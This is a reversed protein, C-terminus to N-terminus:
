RSAGRRTELVGAAVLSAALIAGAITYPWATLLLTAVYAPIVAAGVYRLRADLYNGATMYALAVLLLVIQPITKEPLRGLNALPLLLVITVGFMGWHLAYRLGDAASGQGNRRAVLAGIIWSGVGGVPGAVAWFPGVWQPRVDVLAYGALSIAAWLFYIPANGGQESRVVARRVFDLDETVREIDRPARETGAM